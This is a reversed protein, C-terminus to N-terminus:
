WGFIWGVRVDTHFLRDPYDVLETVLEWRSRWVARVGAHLVPGTWDSTLVNGDSTVRFRGKLATVGAGAYPELALARSPEFRWPLSICWTRAERDALGGPSGTPVM